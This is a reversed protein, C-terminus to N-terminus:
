DRVNTSHKLFTLKFITPNQFSVIEIDGQLNEQAIKKAFYLGFGMGYHKKSTQIRKFIDARIKEGIGMGNDTVTIIVSDINEKANIIIKNSSSIHKKRSEIIADKSNQILVLLIQQIYTEFSHVEINKVNTIDVLINKLNMEPSIIHLIDQVCTLLNFNKVIADYRYFKRFINLTNELIDVSKKCLHLNQMLTNHNLINNEQQLIINEILLSLSNIPQKLQHNMAGLNEGMEIIKSRYVLLQEYEKKKQNIKSRLFEYCTNTIVVLLIFCLFLISGQKTITKLNKELIEKMDLGVGIYWNLKKLHSLTISNQEIQFSINKKFPEISYLFTQVNSQLAKDQINTIIKLQEDAIFFYANHVNLSQIKQFLSATKIIGCLVGKRENGRIPTCINITQEKFFTHSSVKTITTAQAEKTKLYWEAEFPNIKSAIYDYRKGNMYLTGDDLLIQTSDFSLSSYEIIGENIAEIQQSHGLVDTKSIYHASQELLLFREQIWSEIMHKVDAMVLDKNQRVLNSISNQIQYFVNAGILIFFIVATGLILYVKHNEIKQFYSKYQYSKKTIYHIIKANLKRIKSFYM